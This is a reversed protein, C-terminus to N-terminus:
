QSAGVDSQTRMTVLNGRAEQALVAVTDSTDFIAFHPPLGQGKRWKHLGSMREPSLGLDPCRKRTEVFARDIYTAQRRPAHFVGIATAGPQIKQLDEVDGIITAWKPVVGGFLEAKLRDVNDTVVFLISQSM